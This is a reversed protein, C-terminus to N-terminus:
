IGSEPIRNLVQEKHYTLIYDILEDVRQGSPDKKSAKTVYWLELNDIKNDDRVGNKHHVREQKLLPRGLHQSMVHRHELVWKGNVKITVYGASHPHKSGEPKSLSGKRDRDKLGCSRSCFKTRIHGKTSLPTNCHLCNLNRKPSLKAQNACGYSCYKQTSHGEYTKNCKCCIKLNQRDYAKYWCDSSCYKGTTGKKKLFSIGCEGCIAGYHCQETCYRKNGLNTEFETSCKVCYKIM